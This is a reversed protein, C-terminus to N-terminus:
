APPPPSPASSTTGGDPAPPAGHYTLTPASLRAFFTPLKPPPTRGPRAHPLTLITRMLRRVITAQLLLLLAAIEVLLLVTTGSLPPYPLAPIPM